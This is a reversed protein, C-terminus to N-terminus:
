NFLRIGTLFPGDFTPIVPIQNRFESNRIFIVSFTLNQGTLPRVIRGICVFCHPKGYRDRSDCIAILNPMTIALNSPSASERKGSANLLLSCPTSASIFVKFCNISPETITTPRAILAAAWFSSWFFGGGFSPRGGLTSGAGSFGGGRFGRSPSFGFFGSNSTPLNNMLLFSRAPQVRDYILM